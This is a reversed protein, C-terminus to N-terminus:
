STVGTSSAQGAGDDSFPIPKVRNEQYVRKEYSGQGQM